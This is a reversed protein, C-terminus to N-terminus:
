SWSSHRFLEHGPALTSHGLLGGLRRDLLGAPHQAQGRDPLPKPADVLRAVLIVKAVRELTEMRNYADWLDKGM